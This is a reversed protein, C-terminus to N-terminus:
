EIKTSTETIASVGDITAILEAKDMKSLRENTIRIVTLKRDTTFFEDRKYNWIMNSARQHIKGDLEIILKREPIYIDVIYFNELNEGYFFIKQAKFQVNAARLIAELKRESRTKNRILERQYASARRQATQFPSEGSRPPIDKKTKKIKKKENLKGASAKTKKRKVGAVRRTAAVESIQEASLNVIKRESM